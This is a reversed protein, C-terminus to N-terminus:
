GRYPITSPVIDVSSFGFEALCDEAFKRAIGQNAAPGIVIRKLSPATASRWAFERYKTLSYSRVRQKMSPPADARHVELFRYEKENNYAEHKFFLGAHLADAALAVSLHVMYATIAEKSLSRGRPLSILDFMKEILQRHIRDLSSDDYTVPFAANSSTAMEGNAGFAQELATTDFGLGYGRGNDAYARWQGLDDGRESFSCSFFHATRHLGEDLSGFDRAFLKSEPPGDAAKENLNRVARRLSHRLESPDNLSFIDTLWLRGSELIGRLGADNTYHYVVSPAQYSELTAKFSDIVQQAKAQFAAIADMMDPPVLHFSPHQPSSSM